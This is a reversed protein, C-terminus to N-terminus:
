HSLTRAAVVVTVRAADASRLIRAAASATSGTTLIDDVLLVHAGNLHYGSRVAFANRVNARRQSPPM